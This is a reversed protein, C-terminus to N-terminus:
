ECDAVICYCEALFTCCISCLRFFSLPVFYVRLYRPLPSLSLSLSLSFSRCNSPLSYANRVPYLFPYLLPLVCVRLWSVSPSRQHSRLRGSLMELWSSAPGILELGPRQIWGPLSYLRRTGPFRREAGRGGGGRGVGRGAEWPFKHATYFMAYLEHSYLPSCARQPSAAAGVADYVAM